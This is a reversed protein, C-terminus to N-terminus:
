RKVNTNLRRLSQEIEPGIVRLEERHVTALRDLLGLGKRTLAVQVQRRDMQSPKRAVLEQSALRDVLGVASHHEVQLREALEGITVSDRGPFGKIALLAMYQQPTLGVEKAAYESFRLFRRLAYRFAALMEYEDKSVKRGM